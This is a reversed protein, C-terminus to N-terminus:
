YVATKRRVRTGSVIGRTYRSVIYSITELTFAFVPERPFVAVFTRMSVCAFVALCSYGRASAVDITGAIWAGIINTIM